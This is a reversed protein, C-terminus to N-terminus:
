VFLAVPGISNLATIKIPPQFWVLGEYSSTDTFFLWDQTQLVGGDSLSHSGQPCYYIKALSALPKFTSYFLCKKNIYFQILIFYIHM